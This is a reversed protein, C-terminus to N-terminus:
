IRKFKGRPQKKQKAATIIEDVTGASEDTFIFHAGLAHRLYEDAVDLMWVPVSNYLVNRHPAERTLIFKAGTRDTLPTFRHADCYRCAGGKQGTIDRIACKQMTMLPLRGYAIAGDCCKARPLNIEPSAIIYRVGAARHASASQSNCVNLRMDGYVDFGDLIETQWLSTALAKKCGRARASRVKEILALCEGDFTIPPMAIGIKESPECLFYQDIPLFIADFYERAAASVSDAFAFYATREPAGAGATLDPIVGTNEPKKIDTMLFALKQIAERRAGNVASLPVKAGDGGVIDVKGVSFDTGGLKSLASVLRETDLERYEGEPMACEASASFKEGDRLASYTVTARLKSFDGSIDVPLTRKVTKEAAIGASVRKQEDTRVGLMSSNIRNTFYGDTFGSRSFIDSLERLENETADRGEDLLRRYIRTVGYVYEPSKMRGEIKLSAVGLPLIETIHGALSSDKLSLPYKCDCAYPLRCPQACEGRNGSRGGIVSSMLCQGSFSVCLAGHVFIETEIPSSLVLAGLDAKSIERPAVMRSFGLKELARASYANQGSAQTSAHLVATPYYSRIVRALGLDAVIFADAGAGLLEGVLAIAEPLEKDYIQTNVTINTKVGLLRCRKIADFAASDSFNEAGARANLTKAGFYVADAGASLAAELADYGGAPALLEPLKNRKM